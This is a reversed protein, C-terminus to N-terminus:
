QLEDWKALLAERNAGIWGLAEAKHKAPISGRLVSVDDISVFAEFETGVVHVHPPNHDRFYIRIVYGAFRQLVPM